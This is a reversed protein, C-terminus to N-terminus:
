SLNTLLSDDGDCGAETVTPCDEFCLEYSRAEEFGQLM